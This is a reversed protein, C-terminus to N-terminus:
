GAVESAELHTEVVRRAGRRKDMRCPGPEKDFVFGVYVSQETLGAMGRWQRAGPVWIGNHPGLIRLALGMLHETRKLGSGQNSPSRAEGGGARGGQSEAADIKISVGRLTHTDM